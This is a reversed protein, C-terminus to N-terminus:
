RAHHPRELLAAASEVEQFREREEQDHRQNGRGGSPAPCTLPDAGLLREALTLGEPPAATCLARLSKRTFGPGPTGPTYNGKGCLGAAPSSATAESRSQRSLSATRNETLSLPTPNTRRGARFPAPSVFMVSRIPATPPVSATLDARPSPVM